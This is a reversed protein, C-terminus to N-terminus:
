AKFVRRDRKGTEYERQAAIETRLLDRVLQSLPRGTKRALEEAAAKLEPDMRLLTAVGKHKDEKKEMGETYGNSLWLCPGFDAARRRGGNM